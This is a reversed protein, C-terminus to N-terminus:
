LGSKVMEGTMLQSAYHILHDQFTEPSAQMFDLVGKVVVDAKLGAKNYLELKATIDADNPMEKFKLKEKGDVIETILAFCVGWADYSDKANDIAIKYDKLVMIAQMYEGKNYFDFIREWYSEFLPSDMKEWFQPAYQKFKVFREYSVDGKHGCVNVKLDGIKITKM